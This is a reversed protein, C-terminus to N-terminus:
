WREPFAKRLKGPLLLSSTPDASVREADTLEKRVDAFGATLSISANLPRSAQGNLRYQGHLVPKTTRYDKGTGETRECYRKWDITSFSLDDKSHWASDPKTVMELVARIDWQRHDVVSRTRLVYCTVETKNLYEARTFSYWSPDSRHKLVDKAFIEVLNYNTRELREPLTEEQPPKEECAILAALVFLIVVIRM